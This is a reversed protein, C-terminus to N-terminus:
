ANGEPTTASLDHGNGTSGTETEDDSTQRKTKGRGSHLKDRLRTFENTKGEDNGGLKTRPGYWNVCATFAKIQVEPDSPKADPAPDGQPFHRALLAKAAIDLADMLEKSGTM